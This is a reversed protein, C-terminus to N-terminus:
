VGTTCRMYFEKILLKKTFDTFLTLLETKQTVIMSSM